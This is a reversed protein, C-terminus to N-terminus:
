TCSTLLLTPGLTFVITVVAALLTWVIVWHLFSSTPGLAPDALPKAHNRWLWGILVLPALIALGLSLRITDASWAFTCGVSHLAYVAILAGCWASFGLVLLWLQRAPVPRGSM